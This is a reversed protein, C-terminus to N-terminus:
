LCNYCLFRIRPQRSFYTHLSVTSVVETNEESREEKYSNQGQDDEPHVQLIFKDNKKDGVHEDDDVLDPESDSM